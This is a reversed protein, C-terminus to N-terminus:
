FAFSPDRVPRQLSPETEIVVVQLVELVLEDFGFLQGSIFLTSHQHPSARHCSLFRLFPSDSFRLLSLCRRVRARPSISQAVRSQVGGLPPLQRHHETVQHARGRERLLEIGFLVALHHTGILGGAGRHDAAILAMDGLMQAIAQQHVEAIRGGVFIIRLPRHVGPQPNNLRHLHGEGGTRYVAM